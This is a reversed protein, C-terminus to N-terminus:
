FHWGPLYSPGTTPVCVPNGFVDAGITSGADCNLTAGPLQPGLAGSAPNQGSLVATTRGIDNPTQADEPPAVPNRLQANLQAFFGGGQGDPRSNTLIMVLLVLGLLGRAVPKIGPAYGLAGLIVIAAAWVVFNNQGTFESGLLQFATKQTGRVAIIIAVLGILFFVFPM